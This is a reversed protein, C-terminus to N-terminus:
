SVKARGGSRAAQSVVAVPGALRATCALVDTHEGQHFVLDNITEAGTTAHRIGGVRFEVCKHPTSPFPTARRWSFPASPAAPTTKAATM